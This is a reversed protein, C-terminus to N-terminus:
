VILKTGPVAKTQALSSKALCLELILAASAGSGAPPKSKAARQQLTLDKNISNCAVKHCSTESGSCPELINQGGGFM